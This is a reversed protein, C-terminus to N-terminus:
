TNFLVQLECIIDSRGEELNRLPFQVDGVQWILQRLNPNPVSADNLPFMRGGLGWAALLRQWWEALMLPGMCEPSATGM